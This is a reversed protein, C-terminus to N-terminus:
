GLSSTLAAAAGAPDVFMLAVGFRGDPGPPMTHVVRAEFALQRGQFRLDFTVSIITNQAVHRNVWVFAGGRRFEKEVAARWTADDTFTLTFPDDKVPATMAPVLEAMLESGLLYRIGFGSKVVTRLEPPVIVQRAVVGEIFLPLEGPMMVELHLRTGPKPNSGSVVFLGTASVDNTLGSHTFAASGKEGFRVKLRRAHRKSRRKEAM